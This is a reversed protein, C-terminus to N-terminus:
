NHVMARPMVCRMFEKIGVGEITPLDNLSLILLSVASKFLVLSRFPVHPVHWGLASLSSCMKRLPM